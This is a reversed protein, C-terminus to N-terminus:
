VLAALASLGLSDEEELSLLDSDLGAALLSAFGAAGLLFGEVPSEFYRGGDADGAVFWGTCARQGVQPLNKSNSSEGALGKQLSRQRSISRPPHSLSFCLTGTTRM